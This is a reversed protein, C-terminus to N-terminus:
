LNSYQYPISLVFMLDVFMIQDVKLQANLVSIKEQLESKHSTTEGKLSALARIVDQAAIRNNDLKDQTVLKILDASSCPGLNIQYRRALAAEKVERASNDTVSSVLAVIHRGTVTNSDTVDNDLDCITVNTLETDSM